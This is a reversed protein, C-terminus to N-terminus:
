DWYFIGPVRYGGEWTSGKGDRFPYANGIHMRAEGYKKHAKTNKFRLWPGNDSSFIIMTNKEIGAKKIAALVRGVSDDIEEMVDDMMDEMAMVDENLEEFITEAEEWEMEGSELAQEVQQFGQDIEQWGQDVEEWMQNATEEAEAFPSEEDMTMVDDTEFVPEDEFIPEDFTSITEVIVEVIEMVPEEFVEATDFTTTDDFVNSDMMLSDEAFVPEDM